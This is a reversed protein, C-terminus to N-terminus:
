KRCGNEEILSSLKEVVDDWHSKTYETIFASLYSYDSHEGYYFSIPITASACFGKTLKNLLAFDKTTPKNYVM